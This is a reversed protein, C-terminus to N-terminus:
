KEDTLQMMLLTFFIPRWHKAMSVSDILDQQNRDMNKHPCMISQQM